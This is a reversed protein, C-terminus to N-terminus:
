MKHIRINSNDVDVDLNKGRFTVADASNKDHFITNWQYWTTGNSAM